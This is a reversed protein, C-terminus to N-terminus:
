QRLPSFVGEISGSLTLDGNEDFTLTVKNIEDVATNDSIHAVGVLEATAYEFSTNDMPLLELSRTGDSFLGEWSYTRDDAPNYLSFDAYAGLVGEGEYNYKKGSQASVAVQGAPKNDLRNAVIFVYYDEGDVTTKTSADLIMYEETDIEEALLHLADKKSLKSAAPEPPLPDASSAAPPDIASSSAPPKAKDCATLVLFCTTALALLRVYRKM